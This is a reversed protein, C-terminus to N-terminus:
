RRTAARQVRRARVVTVEYRSAVGSPVRWFRRRLSGTVEVVDGETWGAAARRPGAAWAACDITDSTARGSRADGPPRGVTMRWAVVPDGSPLERMEAAAAVRGVLLVENRHPVEDTERATAAPTTSTTPM